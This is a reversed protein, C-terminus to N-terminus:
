GSVLEWLSFLGYPCSSLTMYVWHGSSYFLVGIFWDELSFYKHNYKLIYWLIDTHRVQNRQQHHTYCCCHDKCHSEEAGGGEPGPQYWPFLILTETQITGARTWLKRRAWSTQITEAQSNSTHLTPDPSCRGWSPVPPSPQNPFPLIPLDWDSHWPVPCIHISFCSLFCFM